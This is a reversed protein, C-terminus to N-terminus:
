RGMSISTWPDQNRCWYSKYVSKRETM